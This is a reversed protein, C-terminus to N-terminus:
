RQGSSGRAAASKLSARQRRFLWVAVVQLDERAAPMLDKRRGPAAEIGAGETLHEPGEKDQKTKKKVTYLVIRDASIYSTCTAVEHIFL